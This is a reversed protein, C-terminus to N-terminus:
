VRAPLSPSVYTNTDGVALMPPGAMGSGISLETPHELHAQDCRNAM